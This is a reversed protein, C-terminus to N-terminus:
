AIVSESPPSPAKEEQGDKESPDSLLSEGELDPKNQAFLYIFTKPFKCSCQYEVYHTTTPMIKEYTKKKKRQSLHRLSNQEICTVQRTKLIRQEQCDYAQQTQTCGFVITNLSLYRHGTSIKM